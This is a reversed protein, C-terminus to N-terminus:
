AQRFLQCELLHKMELVLISRLHERYTSGKNDFRMPLHKPSAKVKM